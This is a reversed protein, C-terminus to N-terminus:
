EKYSSSLTKFMSEIFIAQQELNIPDTRKGLFKTLLYEALDYIENAKSIPFKSSTFKGGGAKPVFPKGGQTTFCDENKCIVKPDRQYHIEEGVNWSIQCVSCTGSYQSKM